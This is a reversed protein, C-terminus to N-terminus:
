FRVGMAYLFFAICGALVCIVGFLNTIRSFSRWLNKQEICFDEPSEPDYAIRIRQDLHYPCPYTDATDRVKVLHGHAFFEFVAVQRNRFESLSAEGTRPEAIIDVVRAEARGRYREQRRAYHELFLSVGGFAFGFALLFCSLLWLGNYM